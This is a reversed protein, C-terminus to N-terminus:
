RRLVCNPRLGQERARAKVPQLAAVEAQLRAIRQSPDPHTSLWAVPRSGGSEQSMNQWLEVAQAPDFGAQAMLRQGYIDAESEHKRSFPLLVGVQTGLGLATMVANSTQPSAQAGVYANVLGLGTDAIASTSVRENSHRFVVHGIEHGLVAALQDANEAIAFMGTNVGVKGGPLAFANATDDNFVQVEWATTHWPAPLQAVLANVVCQVYAERKPERAIKGESKLRDFSASGLQDMQTDSYLLIQSRGSPATACASLVVTCLATRLLSISRNM